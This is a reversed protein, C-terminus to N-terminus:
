RVENRTVTGAAAEITVGWDVSVTGSPATLSSTLNVELEYSNLGAYPIGSIPDAMSVSAAWTQRFPAQSSNRGSRAIDDITQGELARGNEMLLAGNARARVITASQGLTTPTGNADCPIRLNGILQVASGARSGNDFPGAVNNSGWAGAGVLDPYYDDLTKELFNGSTVKVMNFPTDCHGAQPQLVPQSPSAPGQGATDPAPVLMARPLIMLEDPNIEYGRAEPAPASDTAAPAPEAAPDGARRLIGSDGDRMIQGPANPGGKADPSASDRSDAKPAMPSSASQQVVHALEHALLRRGQQTGPAFRGAGFVIDRGVTYALAEVERASQAADRDGHVRVQSFDHGFRAEMDRRVPPDLPRGPAKLVRDVSAPVPQADRAGDPARRQVSVPVASFDSPARKALVQDAMRDAERELPDSSSGIALKRQLGSREGAHAPCTELDATPAGCACKRQLIRPAAPTAPQPKRIPPAFM